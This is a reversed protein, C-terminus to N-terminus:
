LLPLAPHDGGAAVFMEYVQMTAHARERKKERQQLQRQWEERDVENLLYKLRLDSNYHNVEDEGAHTRLAPLEMMRTHQGVFINNSGTSNNEGSRAGKSNNSGASAGVFVNVNGHTNNQGAKSGM